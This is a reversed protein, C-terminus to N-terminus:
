ELCNRISNLLVHPKIRSKKMKEQATELCLTHASDSLLLM